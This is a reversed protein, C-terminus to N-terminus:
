QKCANDQVLHTKKKYFSEVELYKESSMSYDLPHLGFYYSHVRQNMLLLIINIKRQGECHSGKLKNDGREM